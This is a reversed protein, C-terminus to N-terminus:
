SMDYKRVTICIVDIKDESYIKDLDAQVSEPLYRRKIVKLHKVEGKIRNQKGYGKSITVKRGVWICDLNWRPGLIRYETDKEGSDFKDYHETNLPIFLAKDSKM